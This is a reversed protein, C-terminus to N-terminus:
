IAIAGRRSRKPLSTGSSTEGTLAAVANRGAKRAEEEATKMADALQAPLKADPVTVEENAPLGLAKKTEDFKQNLRSLEDRLRNLTENQKEIDIHAM